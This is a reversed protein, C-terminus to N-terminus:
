RGNIFILFGLLVYHWNKWELPQELQFKFESWSPITSFDVMGLMAILTGIISLVFLTTILNFNKM